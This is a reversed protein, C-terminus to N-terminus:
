NLDSRQPISVITCSVGRPGCCPEFWVTAPNFCKDCIDCHRNQHTWILGNRSQFLIVGIAGGLLVTWILGNRSQFTAGTVHDSALVMTWILGNRSQFSLYRWPYSRTADNLDSRQPISVWIVLRQLPVHYCNLDSRQPISVFSRHGAFICSLPEFWVTAPNFSSQRNWRKSCTM